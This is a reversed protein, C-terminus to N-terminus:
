DEEYSDPYNDIDIGVKDALRIAKKTWRWCTFSTFSGDEVAEAILGAKIAEKAAPGQWNDLDGTELADLAGYATIFARLVPLPCDPNLCVAVDDIGEMSLEKKCGPCENGEM